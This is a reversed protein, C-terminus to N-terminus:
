KKPPTYSFQPAGGMNNMFHQAARDGNQARFHQDRIYQNTAEAARKTNDVTSVVTRVCSAPNAACRYGVGAAPPIWSAM